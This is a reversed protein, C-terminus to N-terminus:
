RLWTRSGHRHGHRWRHLADGGHRAARRSAADRAAPHCARAGSAGIPHGLAIAGGNVNVRERDLGLEGVVALSQAAFAENIEWLGIDGIEWGARELAKRSAPIPGLGMVQPDLGVHAWGAIRALPPIGHRIAADEDMLVLAAAGDNLGSSNGATVTGDAEFAPKLRALTEASSDPRIHEDADITVRGKRGTIEVPVIEDTFRGDSTAAAARRHSQLAFADQAERSIQYQRAGNEATVGMPYGYFADTLGDLQATDVLKFDGLKKGQRIVAAHPANTMSEQGGVVVIGAM